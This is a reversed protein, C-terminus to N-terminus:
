SFLGALSSLQKLFLGTLKTTATTSLLRLLNGKKQNTFNLCSTNVASNLCQVVLSLCLRLSALESIHLHNIVKERGAGFLSFGFAPRSALAYCGQPSWQSLTSVRPPAGVRPIPFLDSNSHPLPNMCSANKKSLIYYRHFAARRYHLPM